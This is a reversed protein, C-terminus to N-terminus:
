IEVSLFNLLDNVSEDISKGATDIVHDADPWNEYERKLVDSWTVLPVAKNDVTRGEVRLKHEIPDSCVVEIQVLKANANGAVAVWANRTVSLSNVSDAIVTQGLNLNEEALRYAILYGAPGIDGRTMDNNAMAIEITDIRLYVAAYKRAVAKALTSKGTGPLGGFVILM